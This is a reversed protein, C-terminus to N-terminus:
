WHPKRRTWSDRGLGRHNGLEGERNIPVPASSRSEQMESRIRWSAIWIWLERKLIVAAYSCIAAFVIVAALLYVPAIVNIFANM